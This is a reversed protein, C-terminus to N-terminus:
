LVYLVGSPCGAVCAHIFPHIAPTVPSLHIPPISISPPFLVLLLLTSFASSISTNLLFSNFTSFISCPLLYLSSPIFQVFPVMHFVPRPSPSSSFPTKCLKYKSAPATPHCIDACRMTMESPKNIWPKWVLGRVERLKNPKFPAGVVCGLEECEVNAGMELQRNGEVVWGTGVWDLCVMSLDLMFSICAPWHCEPFTLAHEGGHPCLFLLYITHQHILSCRSHTTTFSVDM